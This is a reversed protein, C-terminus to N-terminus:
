GPTGFGRVTPRRVSTMDGAARVEEYTGADEPPMAAFAQQAKGTLHPPCGYAWQSRDVRYATMMCEFTTFFAERDDSEGLKTLKILESVCDRTITVCTIHVYQTTLM